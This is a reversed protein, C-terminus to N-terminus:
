KEITLKAFEVKDTQLEDLLDTFKKITLKEPLNVTILKGNTFKDQFKALEKLNDTFSLDIIEYMKKDTINKVDGYISKDISLLRKRSCKDNAEYTGFNIKTDISYEKCKNNIFDLVKEALKIQKEHDSELSMACEKLGVIGINLTGNKIVKRIKQGSELKEDDYINGIFLTKYYDKSKNGITEFSLLLENKAQECINSVEEYFSEIPKNKYKLGLRSLNISTTSVVIRGNSFNEPNNINNYIKIGNTFYDLKKDKTLLLYLSKNTGLIDLLKSSNEFELNNLKYIVKINTFEKKGFIDILYFNILKGINSNNLGFSISYNNVEHCGNEISTVLKNLTTKIVEDIYTKTDDLAIKFVRDITENVIFQNYENLDISISTEKDIQEEIKKINILEKFGILNFYSNIKEKFRKKFIYLFYNELLYDINNIGIEENVERQSNLILTILESMKLETDLRRNLNLHVNSFIGLSFYDLDHIYLNGEDLLRTSKTDLIYSKTYESSIIKGFDYILNEASKMNEKDQSTEEIKEIAKVFKHQQKEAFVKRSLARKERYDKFSDYIEYKKENYLTNEIIDQIDEVNITKRDKYNDNIYTLVKEFIKFSCEDDSPNVSDFAKKIALAVKSANFAVRQGSRKVVVLDELVENHM